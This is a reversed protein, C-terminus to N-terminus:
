DVIFSGSISAGSKAYLKYYYFGSRFDKRCFPVKSRNGIIESKVRKGSINYVDVLEYASAMEINLCSADTLPNPFLHVENNLISGGVGQTPVNIDLLNVCPPYRRRHSLWSNDLHYFWNNNEKMCVLENWIGNYPFISASFFLGRVINGVGEVWVSPVNFNLWIRKRYTGDLLISDVDAVVLNTLWNNRGGNANGKLTDGRGVSFDFLLYEARNAVGANHLNGFFYVKRNVSDERVGGIFETEQLVTDDSQYLKHYVTSNITTDHNKLGYYIIRSNSDTHAKYAEGWIVDAAPFSHQSQAKVIIFFCLITFLFFLPPKM